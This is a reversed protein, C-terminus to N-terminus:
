AHAAGTAIANAARWGLLFATAVPNTSLPSPMLSADVVRLSESGKVRFAADVPAGEGTGMRVTGGPHWITSAGERVYTAHEAETGPALERVLDARLASTTALERVRQVATALRQADRRDTLYGPDVHPDTAPDASALRVTGRSDPSVLVAIFIAAPVPLALTPALSAPVSPTFLIQLDPAALSADSRVYAVSGTLLSTEPRAQKREFVVPLQLHDHLNAGVGPADVLVDIGHRRLADAPGIGSLQLLHPTRLAGAALVVEREAVVSLSRGGQEVDVGVARTGDFRIRRAQAGTLIQLNDVRDLHDLFISTATARTGNGHVHFDLPAAGGQLLAEYAGAAPKGWGAEEVAALFPAGDQAPDPCTRVPIRGAEERVSTGDLRQELSQFARATTMADWGAAGLAHWADYNAPHAHLYMMANLLTSGGLAKGQNVIVSRNGLGAQPVTAMSWDLDSGWTRAIGDIRMVDDRRDAHGAELLVVTSGADSALRAAAAAGAAGAGVVVYDARLSTMAGVERPIDTRIRSDVFRPANRGV